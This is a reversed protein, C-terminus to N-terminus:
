KKTVQIDTVRKNIARKSSSPISGEEKISSKAQQVMSSKKSTTARTLTRDSSVNSPSTDITSLKTHKLVNNSPMESQSEGRKRVARKNEVPEKTESNARTIRKTVVPIPPPPSLSQITPTDKKSGRKSIKRVVGFQDSVNVIAPENLSSKGLTNNMRQQVEVENRRRNFFEPLLMNNMNIISKDDSKENAKTEAAVVSPKKEILKDKAKIRSSVKQIKAYEEKWEEIKSAEDVEIKAKSNIASAKGKSSYKLKQEMGEFLDKHNLQHVSLNDEIKHKFVRLTKDSKSNLEKSPQLKKGKVIKDDKTTEPWYDGVLNPLHISTDIVTSIKRSKKDPSHEIASSRKTVKKDMALNYMTEMSELVLNEPTTQKTKKTIIKGATQPAGESKASRMKNQQTKTRQPSLEASVANLNQAHHPNVLCKARSSTRRKEDLKKTLKSKKSLGLKPHNYKMISPGANAAKINDDEDDSSSSEFTPAVPIQAKKQNIIDKAAILGDKDGLISRIHTPTEVIDSSNLLYDYTSAKLLSNCSIKGITPPTAEVVNEEEDSSDLIINGKSLLKPKIQSLDEITAAPLESAKVKTEKSEKLRSGPKVTYNQESVNEEDVELVDGLESPIYRESRRRSTRPEGTPVTLLETPMNYLDIEVTEEDSSSMPKSSLVGTPHQTLLQTPMDYLDIDINSSSDNTPESKVNPSKPKQFQTLLQTPINYLDITSSISKDNSSDDGVPSIINPEQVATLTEQKIEINPYYDCDGVDVAKEVANTIALKVTSPDIEQAVLKQSTKHVFFSKKPTNIQTPMNYLDDMEDDSQQFKNEKDSSMSSSLDAPNTIYKDENMPDILGTSPGFVENLSHDLMNEKHTVNEENLLNASENRSYSDVNFPDKASVSVLANKIAIVARKCVAKTSLPANTESINNINDDFANLKFAEKNFHASIADDECDTSCDPVVQPETEREVVDEEKEYAVQDHEINSTSPDDLGVIYEAIVESENEIESTELVNNSSIENCLVIKENQTLTESDDDVFETAFQTEPIEIEEDDSYISENTNDDFLNDMSIKRSGEVKQTDLALCKSENAALKDPTSSNYATATLPATNSAIRSSIQRVTPAQSCMIIEDDDYEYEEDSGDTAHQEVNKKEDNEPLNKTGLGSDDSTTEEGRARSSSSNNLNFKMEYDGLRIHANDELTHWLATQIRRNNIYTGNRSALDM